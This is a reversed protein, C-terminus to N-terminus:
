AGLADWTINFLAAPDSGFRAIFDLAGDVSIRVREGPDPSDYRYDSSAIWKPSGNDNHWVEVGAITRSAGLAWGVVSLAPERPWALEGALTVAQASLEIPLDNFDRSDISLDPGESTLSEEPRM